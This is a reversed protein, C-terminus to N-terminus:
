TQPDKLADITKGINELYLHKRWDWCEGVAHHRALLMRFFQSVFCLGTILFRAGDADQFYLYPRGDRGYQALADLTTIPSLELDYQRVQDVLNERCPVIHLHAHNICGGFRNTCSVSGHEFCVAATGYRRRIRGKMEEVIQELEAIQEPPLKGVCDYHDKSVVMVYGEVFAGLTPIVQFHATEYLVRSHLGTAPTIHSHLLNNDQELNRIEACFGCTEDWLDM